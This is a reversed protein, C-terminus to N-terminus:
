LARLVRRGQSMSHSTWTVFATADMRCLRQNEQSTGQTTAAQKTSANQTKFYPPCAGHWGGASGPMHATAAQFAALM